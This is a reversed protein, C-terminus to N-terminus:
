LQQAREPTAGTAPGHHLRNEAYLVRKDAFCMEPLLIQAVCSSVENDIARERGRERETERDRSERALTGM